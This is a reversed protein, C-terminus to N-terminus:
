GKMGADMISAALVAICACLAAMAPNDRPRLGQKSTSLSVAM